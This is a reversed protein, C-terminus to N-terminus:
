FGHSDVDGRAGAVDCQGLLNKAAEIVNRRRTDLDVGDPDASMMHAIQPVSSWWGALSLLLFALVDADVNTAIEGNEQGSRVASVRAAYYERRRSEDLITGNYTLGEWLVLRNLHPHERHYDFLDGIYADIDLRGTASVPVAESIKRLEGDLVVGFLAQKNGFYHYIREKNVGSRRAVNDITTGAPGKESFELLAAELIRSKTKETDWAM